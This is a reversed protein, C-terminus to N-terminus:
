LWVSSVLWIFLLSLEVDDQLAEVSSRLQLNQLDDAFHAAQAQLFGLVENLSSGGAGLGDLFAQGLFIGLLQSGLDLFDAAFDFDLLKSRRSHVKPSFNM